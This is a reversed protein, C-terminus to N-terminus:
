EIEDLDALHRISNELLSTFSEAVYHLFDPDHIYAIIQGYSGPDAPDLDLMLYMSGGAMTAFPFWRTHFLYPKIQPDLEQIEEASCYEELWEDRECFFTKTESMEELSMLYMPTGDEWPYLMHFAYGSGNKNRYFARFDEPLLIGHAQEFAALSEETAGAREAYELYLSRIEEEMAKRPLLDDLVTMLPSLHENVFKRYGWFAEEEGGRDLLVMVAYSIMDLWREMQATQEDSLLRNRQLMGEPEVAWARALQCISFLCSIVRRDLTDQGLEGALARILTMLEHFNSEKLEGQFPRLSGLFGREMKPHHVDDDQFAHYRLLRIAQGTNM